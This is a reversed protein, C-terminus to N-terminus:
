AVSEDIEASVAELIPTGTKKKVTEDFENLCIAPTCGFGYYSPEISDYKRPGYCIRCNLTPQTSAVEEEIKFSVEFEYGEKGGINYKELIAKAEHYFRNLTYQKM